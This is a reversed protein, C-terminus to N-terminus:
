DIEPRWRAVSKEGRSLWDPNCQIVGNNVDSFCYQELALFSCGILCVWGGATQCVSVMYPGLPCPVAFKGRQPVKLDSNLCATFTMGTNIFLSSRSGSSDNRCGEVAHLFLPPLFLLPPAVLKLQIKGAAAGDCNLRDLVTGLFLNRWSTSLLFSFRVWGCICGVEM